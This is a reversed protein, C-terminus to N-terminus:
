KGAQRVSVAIQLLKSSITLGAATAADQDVSFRVRGDVTEFDIMGRHAPDAHDTVTLMPADAPMADTQGDGLWVVQCESGRDVAVLHRVVVAHGGVGQGKAAADLLGDFPQGDGITCISLPAGDALAAAPWGVYAGFKVLFTAKEALTLRDSQAQALAGSAWVAAVGSLVGAAVSRGIRVKMNM